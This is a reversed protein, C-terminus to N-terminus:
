KFNDIYLLKPSSFLNSCLCAYAETFSPFQIMNLQWNSISNASKFLATDKQLQINMLQDLGVGNAKLIAEKQTWYTYFTHMSEDKLVSNWESDSFCHRFYKRDINRSMEIDLGLVHETSIACAVLNKSHAISFFTEKLLPKEKENYYINNVLDGSFGLQILGKKLLLRGLLFNYADEEFKYRLAREELSKPLQALLDTISYQQAVLKSNTYFIQM